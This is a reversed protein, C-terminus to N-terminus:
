YEVAVRRPLEFEFHLGANRPNDSAGAHLSAARASGNRMVSM